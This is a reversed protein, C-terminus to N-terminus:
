VPYYPSIMLYVIVGTISVYLWIPFTWRAIKKHKEYQIGLGRYLTLLALPVIATSLLIHTFLIFYYLLKITGQGGFETHQALSHYIVYFLLFLTSLVFASVMSIRHLRSNKKYRIFYFGAILLVTVCSNIAANVMPLIYVRPDDIAAKKPKFLLFAVLGVVAVSLFAIIRLWNKDSRANGAPLIM